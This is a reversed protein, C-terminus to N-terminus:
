PGGVFGASFVQTYAQSHVSGSSSAPVVPTKGPMQEAAIPRSSNVASVVTTSPPLKGALTVTGPSHVPVVPHAPPMDGAAASVGPAVNVPTNSPVNKALVPPLVPIVSMQPPMDKALTPVSMAPVVQTLPDLHVAFSLAPRPRRAYVHSRQAWPQQAWPQSRRVRHTSANRSFESIQRCLTPMTKKRGGSSLSIGCDRAVDELESRSYPAQGRHLRRSGRSGCYREEDLSCSM